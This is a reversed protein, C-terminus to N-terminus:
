CLKVISDPLQEPTSCLHWHSPLLVDTTAAPGYGWQVMVFPLDNQDAAEGDESRDGIYCAEQPTIRLDTLLQAIMGAKNKVGERCADLAYVADFYIDWKLFALIQHTPVQRKNTAISLRFGQAKLKGLMTEIGVYVLSERYGQSDYYAKFAEALMQLQTTDAIGSITQLTQMLPPGILQPTLPVKPSVSYQNLAEAFSSLISPASDVLTGDLDFIVHKRM